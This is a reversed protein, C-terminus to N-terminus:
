WCPSEGPYVSRNDTITNTFTNATLKRQRSINTDHNNHKDTQTQVYTCHTVPTSSYFGMKEEIAYSFGM